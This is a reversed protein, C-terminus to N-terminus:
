LWGLRALLVYVSILTLIPGGWICVLSKWGLARVVKRESRWSILFAPNNDGQMIVVKPHLDFDPATGPAAAASGSPLAPGTVNAMAAAPDNIGAAAWAAPNSIGARVLAAAIKGQPTMAATEGPPAGGSLKIIEQTGARAFTEPENFRHQATGSNRELRLKGSFGPLSLTFQSVQAQQTQIPRPNVAVGPNEGLTGLIFLFNKPKICYEDVRIKREGGVGHRVLFSRVNAPMDQSFVLSTGYEEHFDRHLDMEAGQPNVLLRGTNDDLYFPLHLSEDAVKHWNESKGSKRLEWALTRYYYCPLGTVPANMTYPGAALGNVEVLGLAASRIKSTPTNLILRKRQLIRFGRSFLYLGGCTGAIGLLWFNTSSDLLLLALHCTM